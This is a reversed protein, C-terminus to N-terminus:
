FTLTANFRVFRPARISTPRLWNAGDEGFDTEYGTQTNSNTINYLDIGVDLRQDRLRVIKAFRMDFTNVRTQYLEGPLLLNVSHFTNAGGILHRGLQNFVVQSPIDYNASLSTGGSGPTGSAQTGPQSRMVASVLVDVKPVTYTALGRLTTLWDETVHCSDVRSPSVEPLKATIECNDRVGRGTTTGGQLVLGWQTRANATAAVSHYYRTEDGYDSAFTTWGNQPRNVRVVNTTVPYGGGGPLDPHAPATITLRDYDEPGLNLNDTYFFNGWWRRTYSLEVSLRAIVEQQVSGTVQWDWPRKGWGELIEPNVNTTRVTQGFNLNNGTVAGCTDGGPLTHAATNAFNCDVVFNRNADTWARSQTRQRSNAPNNVTYNAENNASQLYHGANLRLATRGNGFVDYAVGARPSVDHYGKVGETYPDIQAPTWRNDWLVGNTGQPHWSKAFEYRLAGQLTLRDRTWQDQLYLAHFTTVNHQYNPISLTVQNPTPVFTGNTAINCPTTSPLGANLLCSNFRYTMQPISSDAYSHHIHYAGQTGVKISHAGTVYSVSGRWVNPQQSNSSRDGIGRYSKNAFGYVSANQETVRIFNNLHGAPLQGGWDSIFTSYGAELLLRNTVPSSYTAQIIKERDDWGTGTEPANTANGLAVWDDGRPLCVGDADRAFSSGTCAFNYDHYFGVKNRPTLQATVRAALQRKSSAGRIRTNTDAAYTWSNPDGANLNAYGNAVQTADGMDRVTGYFWVRDRLLPGGVSASTDWSKILAPPENIGFRRLRDDINSGQSWRGATSGFVLGSYRNGGERPILNMAPGGTDAEGLGGSVTVQVEETNSVDYLFDAVGGGNFSSGVNMGAIQIRGENSRGGNATFFSSARGTASTVAGAGSLQIGPVTALINGYGRGIPIANVVDSTVTVQRRTNQVDVVPTEGTVTITEEVGGVRLEAGISITQAGTVEVAERRVTSFGPLTFTVTYTGPRLDIIRYQGSGDTTATRIKEILVPSAAEVTVGPLVAGSADQVTGTLSAQAWALSPLLLASVFMALARM